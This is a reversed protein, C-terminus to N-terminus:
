ALRGKAYVLKQLSGGKTARSAGAVRTLRAPNKCAPDAGLPVLARRFLGDAVKTEWDRRNAVDVRLLAHLSKGGSDVLTAVDDIGFGIWFAAQKLKSVEPDPALSDFEAVCHRFTAVADGCRMSHHCGNADAVWGGEPKIPNCCVLQPVPGGSRYNDLWQEFPATVRSLKKDAHEVECTIIEGPLFLARLQAEAQANASASNIDTDSAEALYAYTRDLGGAIEIGKGIYQNALKPAPVPNPKPIYTGCNAPENHERYAKAVADAVETPPNPPRSLAKTIGTAAQEAPIGALAAYNATKMIWVHRTGPAPTDRLAMEYNRLAHYARAKASDEQFKPFNQNFPNM